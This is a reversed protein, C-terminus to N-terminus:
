GEEEPEGVVLVAEWTGANTPDLLRNPQWPFRLMQQPGYDPLIGNVLLEFGFPSRATKGTPRELATFLELGVSGSEEDYFAAGDVEWSEGTGPERWADNDQDFCNGVWQQISVAPVGGPGSDVHASFKRAYEGPSTGFAGCGRGLSTQDADADLYLEVDGGSLFWVGLEEPLEVYFYVEGEPSGIMKIRPKEAALPSTHNANLTVAHLYEEGGDDGDVSRPADRAVLPIVTPPEPIVEWGGANADAPVTWAVPVTGLPAGPLDVVRVPVGDILQYVYDVRAEDRGVDNAADKAYELRVVHEGDEVPIRINGSKERGSVSFVLTGDIRVGFVDHDAESDVAYGLALENKHDAPWEQTTEIAARTPGAQSGKFAMSVPRRISRTEPGYTLVWGGGYGGQSWDGLPDIESPEFAFRDFAVGGAIFRVDDVWALDLGEDVSGDKKYAFRITHNGASVPLSIVGTLGRGGVEFASSGDISVVLKDHDQQSDVFYKFELSGDEAWTDARESWSSTEEGIDGLFRHSSPSGVRQSPELLGGFSAARASSAGLVSVVCFGLFRALWGMQTKM